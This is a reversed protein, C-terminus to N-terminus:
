KRRKRAHYVEQWGGTPVTAGLGAGPGVFVPWVWATSRWWSNRNNALVVPTGLVVGIVAGIAINRVLHNKSKLYIRLVDRRAFTQEGAARRVTIGERNLAQLAGEYFKADNLEVRILHGPKLFTLDDWNSSAAQLPSGAM